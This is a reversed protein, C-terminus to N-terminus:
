LAELGLAEVEALWQKRKDDSAEVGGYITSRVPKIGVFQLINRRLLKLAHAAFYWRYVFGPMGMTM